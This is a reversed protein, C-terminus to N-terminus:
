RLSELWQRATNSTWDVAGMVRWRAKGSADILITTPYVRVKFQRAWNSDPDSVTNIKLGHNQLYKLARPAPENVNIGLVVIKDNGELEALADLSPLEEKCPECWTAWFNLIVTRGKFENPTWKKQELDTFLLSPTAQSKPWPTKEYQAFAAQTCAAIFILLAFCGRMVRQRKVELWKFVLSM